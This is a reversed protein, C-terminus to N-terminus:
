AVRIGCVSKVYGISSLSQYAKHGFNETEAEVEANHVILRTKSHQPKSTAEHRACIVKESANEHEDCEKPTM